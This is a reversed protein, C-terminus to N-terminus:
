GSVQEEKKKTRRKKPTEGKAAKEKKDTAPAAKAGQKETGLTRASLLTKCRAIERRASGILNVNELQNSFRKMRLQFLEEELRKIRAVLEDDTSERMATMTATTKM